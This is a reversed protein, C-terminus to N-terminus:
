YRMLIFVHQMGAGVTWFFIFDGRKLKNEREVRELALFPSTSGTYGYEDGVFPCKEYPIGLKECLMNRHSLVYQSFCFATIDEVNLHNRNLIKEITEAVKEMPFDIAAPPATCIEPCKTKLTLSSGLYPYPLIKSVQNDIFNEFDLIGSIKTSENTVVLASALDGFVGYLDERDKHTRLTLYDGGVVLLRQIRDNGHMLKAAQYYAMVMGVCNMNMDFCFCDEKGNIIEHIYTANVPVFFEPFQGVSIIGDIDSGRLGCQKLVRKVAMMQMTLGNEKVSEGVDIEYRLKRGYVDEFLHQMDKGKEKYYQIYYDNKVRNVPHYHAIGQIRIRIHM